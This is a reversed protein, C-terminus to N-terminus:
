QVEGDLYYWRGDVRRFQSIEHMRYARGAIKYRAVFEVLAQSEGLAVHRKVALGLWKPTPEEALDLQEPRTEPHWSALLYETVHLVYASYRSRMLTVADAPLATGSHYQGCCDTLARGSGCPCLYPSAPTM